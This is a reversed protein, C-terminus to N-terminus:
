SGSGGHQTPTTLLNERIQKWQGVVTVVLLSLALAIGFGAFANPAVVRYGLILGAGVVLGAFYGGLGWIVGNFPDGGGMRSVLLKTVLAMASGVAIGLIIAVPVSSLLAGLV